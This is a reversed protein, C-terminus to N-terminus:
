NNSEPSATINVAESTRDRSSIPDGDQDVIQAPAGPINGNADVIADLLPGQQDVLQKATEKNAKLSAVLKAFEEQHPAQEEDTMDVYEPQGDVETLKQFKVKVTGDFINRQMISNAVGFLGQSLQQLQHVGNYLHEFEKGNMDIKDTAQWYPQEIVQPMQPQQNAAANAAQENQNSMRRNKIKFQELRRRSDATRKTKAM